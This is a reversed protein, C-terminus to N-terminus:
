TPSTRTTIQMWIPSVFALLHPTHPFLSEKMPKATFLEEAM